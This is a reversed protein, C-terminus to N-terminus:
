NVRSMSILLQKTAPPTLKIPRVKAGFVVNESIISYSEGRVAGFGLSGNIKNLLNLRALVSVNEKFVLDISVTGVLVSGLKFLDSRSALADTCAEVYRPRPSGMRLSYIRPSDVTISVRRLFEIENPELRLSAKLKSLALGRRLSVDFDYVVKISRRRVPKFASLPANTPCFIGINNWLASKTRSKPEALALALINGPLYDFSPESSLATATPLIQDYGPYRDHLLGRITPTGSCATLMLPVLLAAARLPKLHRNM